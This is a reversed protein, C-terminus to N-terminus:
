KKTRAALWKKLEDGGQRVIDELGIRHDFQPVPVDDNYHHQIWDIRGTDLLGAFADVADHDYRTGRGESLLRMATDIANADIANRYPRVSTLADFTDVVAFYRAWLPIDEGKLRDPYGLGDIREHHSRVLGLVFPDTVGMRLLREHGHITHLRIQDRQSETLEGRSQLVDKPVDIKGVDHLAAGLAMRETLDENLGITESLARTYLTVRWTHAATSLDKLEIARILALVLDPDM